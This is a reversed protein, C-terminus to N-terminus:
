QYRMALAALTEELLSAMKPRDSQEMIGIALAKTKAERDLITAGRAYEGGTEVLVGCVVSRVIVEPDLITAAALPDPLILVDEDYWLKGRERMFNCLYEAFKVPLTEGLRTFIADVMDGPLAENLCPEWPIMTINTNQSLVIKAAEPDCFVNFEAAPTINGRGHCTGGMVWIRDIGTALEPREQLVHALNTLPGITLLQLKPGGAMANQLTNKLAAHAAETEIKIEHPPRKVGGLGDKGHVDIAEVRKGRSPEAAGKYVPIDAKCVALVDLVNQTAQELNVNGFTTTIFDIKHGAGILMMLALADDVGGDTDVVFTSNNSM